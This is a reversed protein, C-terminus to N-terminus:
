TEPPSCIALWPELGLDLDLDLRLRLEDLPDFDVPLPRLEDLRDFDDDLLRELADLLREFDDLLPLEELLDREDVLARWFFSL